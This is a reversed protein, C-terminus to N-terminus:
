AAMSQWFGHYMFATASFAAMSLALIFLNVVMEKM